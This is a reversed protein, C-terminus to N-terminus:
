FNCRERYICVDLLSPPFINLNFNIVWLILFVQVLIPTQVLFSARGQGWGKGTMSLSCKVKVSPVLVGEVELPLTLLSLFDVRSWLLLCMSDKQCWWSDQNIFEMLEYIYNHWLEMSSDTGQVHCAHLVGQPCFDFASSLFQYGVKDFSLESGM